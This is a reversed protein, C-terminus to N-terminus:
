PVGTAVMHPTAPEFIVALAGHNHQPAPGTISLPMAAATGKKKTGVRTGVKRIPAHVEIQVGVNALREPRPCEAVVFVQKRQHRRDINGTTDMRAIRRHDTARNACGSAVAQREARMRGVGIALAESSAPHLQRRTLELIQDDILHCRERAHCPRFSEGESVDLRMTRQVVRSSAVRRNGVRNRTGHSGDIRLERQNTEGPRLQEGGRTTCIKVDDSFCKGVASILSISREDRAAGRAAHNVIRLGSRRSRNPEHAIVEYIGRISGGNADFGACEANM